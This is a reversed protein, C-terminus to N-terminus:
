GRPLAVTFKAGGGPSNGATVFGGHAEVIARVIALGLGSGGSKRARSKDARYFRDFVADLSDVPLGPGEDAVEIVAQDRRETIRIEAATGEPTHVRLNSLLNAVVQQIREADATILLSAPAQLEVTRGPDVARHDEIMDRALAVLDVVGFQLPQAQGLRALTLLDETLNAMRRSESEIREWAQDELATEVLGGKKRLEAYGILTTLPTRLEHSADAVFQRLRERADRESNVAREIDSLMKNLATALKGLESSPDLEPIRQSLDGGAISAAVDIMQDVPETARRVTWWSAAGGLLLVAGGVVLLKAVLTRVAEAVPTMPSAYISVAGNPRADVFTRYRISGDASPVFAFGARRPLGTLDPLEDPDDTFGSPRAMVVRGSRTMHVEAIARFVVTDPPQNGSPFGRRAAVALLSGDIQDVLIDRVSRSAAVGLAAIVLLLLGTLSAVLRTRLTM